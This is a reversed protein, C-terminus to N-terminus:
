VRPARFVPPPHLADMMGVHLRQTSAHVRPCTSVDVAGNKEEKKSLDHLREFITDTRSDADTSLNETERIRSKKSLIQFKSMETEQHNVVNRDSM